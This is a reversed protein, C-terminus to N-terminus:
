PVFANIPQGVFLDLFDPPAAGIWVGVPQREVFEFLPQM